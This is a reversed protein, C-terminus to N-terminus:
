KESKYKTILGPLIQLALLVYKDNTWDLQEKTGFKLVADRAWKEFDDLDSQEILRELSLADVTITSGMTSFMGCNRRAWAVAKRM